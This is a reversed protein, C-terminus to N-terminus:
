NFFFNRGEVEKVITDLCPEFVPLEDLDNSNWVDIRSEDIDVM